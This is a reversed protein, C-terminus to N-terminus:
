GATKKHIVIRYEVSSENERKELSADIGSRKMTAAAREITNCFLRLDKVILKHIPLPESRLVSNVLSQTESETLEGKIVKSLVRRRSTKDRIKILQQMQSFSLDGMEIIQRERPTFSLIRLYECLRRRSIGLQLAAQEETFGYSKILTELAQARKFSDGSERQINEVLRYVASQRRSCHIIICPVVTFGAMVAARLRREGSVLEFEYPTIDRVTIPQLIGNREISKSLSSLEKRSYSQSIVSPDASIRFVPIMAIKSEGKVTKEM